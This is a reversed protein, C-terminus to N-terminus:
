QRNEDENKLIVKAEEETGILIAFYKSDENSELFVKLVMTLPVSLFMGIPGFLWGWFMLSILIVAMSLGMGKGMVKPEIISGIIFNVGFYLIGTYLLTSGGLEIGAFIVAPIAAILSGINPIYNLLFAISGWLIAYDVNLFLLGLYIFLGTAFSTISKIGIYSRLNIIIKNLNIISKENGSQSFMAKFKLPFSDLELLFFITLLMILFVMSIIQKLHDIGNLIIKMLLGPETNIPHDASYNIGFKRLLDTNDAIYNLFKLKYQPLDANFRSLSVGLLDGILFLFFSFIVVVILIAFNRSIKKHELWHVAQLLMLSIFVALILPIIINSISKIGAIIIIIGAWKMISYYNSPAKIDSIM